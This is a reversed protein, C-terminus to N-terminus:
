VSRVLKLSIRVVEELRANAGLQQMAQEVAIQSEGSSFGLALLAQIADTLLPNEKRAELILDSKESANLFKTVKEKLTLVIQQATKLGVGSIAKLQVIDNKLILQYLTMPAYASLIHMASKPGIGSVSMLWMFAQREMDDMFGFLQLSEERVHLYTKFFIPQHVAPLQQLTLQSVWIEYGIGHVEVEVHDAWKTKLNGNIFAIM